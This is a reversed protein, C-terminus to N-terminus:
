DKLVSALYAAALSAFVVSQVVGSLMSLFIIPIPLVIALMTALVAILLDGAFMNGLLRLSLSIAKAFESIIDLFGIFANIISLFGDKINTSFGKVIGKIQIYQSFHNIIGNKKIGSAQTFLIVIVALALTANFDSTPTRFLNKGEFTWGVLLPNFTMMLNNVLIFLLLSGALPTIKKAVEKDGVIPDLFDQISTVIFELGMQIKGTNTIQSAKAWKLLFLLAVVNFVFLTMSNTIPLSGIYGLIDPTITPLSGTIQLM